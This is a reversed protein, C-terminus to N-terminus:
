GVVACMGVRWWDVWGPLWLGCRTEGCGAEATVRSTTTAPLNRLAVATRSAPLRVLQQSAAADGPRRSAPAPTAGGTSSKVPMVPFSFGPWSITKSPEIAPKIMCFYQLTLFPTPRSLTSTPFTTDPSLASQAAAGCVVVMSVLVVAIEGM